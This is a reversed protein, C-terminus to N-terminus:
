SFNFIVRCFRYIIINPDENDIDDIWLFRMLDRQQKDVEVNLFAKEIDAVLGVKHARFRMLIDAIGAALPPGTYTCDNLSLCGPKVRASADFAVRLKTTLADNRIVAQHPLYHTNEPPQEETEDVREIIKEHLQDEFVQSYEKLISPETEKDRIGISDLDWLRHLLEETAPGEHQTQTAAKLVHTAVFNVSSLRPKKREGSVPGSLVWGLITCSAVPGENNEARKTVGTFFSWMFDAGILLDIQLEENGHNSDALEIDQLHAFQNQATNIQQSGIPSCITPVVFVEIERSSLKNINGVSVRVKECETPQSTVDNGFTKILLSEKGTSPLILHDRAHQTIYSKQSGSDFIVRARTGTSVDADKDRILVQATQLLILDQSGVHFTSAQAPPYQRNTANGRNVNTQDNPM